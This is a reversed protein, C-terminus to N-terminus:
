YERNNVFERVWENFSYQEEKLRNTELFDKYELTLQELKNCM